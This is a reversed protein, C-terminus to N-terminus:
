WDLADPNAIQSGTQSDVAVRVLRDDKLIGVMLENGILHILFDSVAQANTAKGVALNLPTHFIYERDNIERAVSM